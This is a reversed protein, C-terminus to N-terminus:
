SMPFFKKVIAREKQHLYAKASSKILTNTIFSNKPMDKNTEEHRVCPILLFVSELM